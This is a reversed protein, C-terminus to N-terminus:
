DNPDVGSSQITPLASNSNPDGSINSIVEHKLRATIRFDAHMDETNAIPLANDDFQRAGLPPKADYIGKLYKARFM